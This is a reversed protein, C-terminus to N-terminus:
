QRSPAKWRCPGGARPMRLDLYRLMDALQPPAAPRAAVHGDVVYGPVHTLRLTADLALPGGTDHVVGNITDANGPAPQFIAQYNGLAEGQTGVLDQIDLQGQLESLFKGTWGISVLRGSLRAHAGAPLSSVLSSTLPIDLSVNTAHVAGGFGLAVDGRLYNGQNTLDLRLGLRGRM